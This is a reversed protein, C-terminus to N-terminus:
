ASPVPAQTRVWRAAWWPVTVAYAAVGAALVPLAVAAELALGFAFPAAATGLVMLGTYVGRVMGMSHIGFVEAWLAGAVVSHAGATAGLGLFLGWLAAQPPAHAALLVGAALPLLYLRFAATVGFRDVWRGALWTTAAQTVAFGVFGLAVQAPLWGRLASLAGQHLFVATVVFPSVLAVSLAALFAPQRLLQRRQLGAAPRAAAAGAPAAPPAPLPPPLPAALHRLAPLALGLVLAAAGAWVWRWDVWGLLATVAMPLLAEGLIFGYAATAISRGRQRAYRAATVIALHSGLGQGGLRLGFLGLLLLAPGQALALLVAGGGLIALAVTIARRPPLRDALAGLWFMLLGSAATALGYLAGWRSEGLALEALIAAGFLGIYFSQGVNSVLATALGFGAARRHHLAANM